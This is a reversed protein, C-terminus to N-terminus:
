RHQCRGQTRNRRLLKGSLRLRKQTIMENVSLLTKCVNCSIARQESCARDPVKGTRNFLMRPGITRSAKKQSQKQLIGCSKIERAFLAETEEM